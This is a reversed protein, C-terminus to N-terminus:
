PYNTYNHSTLESIQYKYRVDRNFVQLLTCSCLVFIFHKLTMLQLIISFKLLSMAASDIYCRVLCLGFM